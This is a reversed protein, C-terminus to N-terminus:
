NVWETVYEIPRRHSKPWDINPYGLYIMGQILDDPKLNFVENAEPTYLYKPSSWFAGLGYAAATLLINQGACAVAEIEEVEPIKTEPTRCMILLILVSSKEIRALTRELKKANFEAPSTTNRYQTEVIKMLKMRGEGSFVIFRWPQTKGHTPAWTANTLLERVIEEHVIRDSYQEPYITRRDRIVANIESLDYKM